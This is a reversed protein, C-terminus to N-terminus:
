DASEVQGVLTLHSDGQLLPLALLLGSAYQSSVDGPLTFAGAKLTGSCDLMGSKRTMHVGHMSLAAELPALPRESLRKSMRFTAHMGLACVIPLLFRLTSGSEGCDLRHPESRKGRVQSIPTIFFCSNEYQIEAGMSVLCRVTADIDESTDACFLRTPTQSLAACILARHAQSKSSVAAIRGQFAAPFVTVTM